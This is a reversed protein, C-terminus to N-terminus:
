HLIDSLWLIFIFGITCLRLSSVDINNVLILSCLTLQGLADHDCMKVYECFNGEM